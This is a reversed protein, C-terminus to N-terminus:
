KKEEKKGSLLFKMPHKKIEQAIESMTTATERLMQMTQIINQQSQTLITNINNITGAMGGVMGKIDQKRDVSVERYVAVVDNVNTLLTNVKRVIEDLSSSELGEIVDGERLPPHPGEIIEPNKLEVVPDGIVGQSKIVATCEKYLGMDSRIRLTALFHLSPKFVPKIKVVRGIDFGKVQVPTGKKLITMNDLKLYVDVTSTMLSYGLKMLIFVVIIITPILVFLGVKLETKEGRLKQIIPKM